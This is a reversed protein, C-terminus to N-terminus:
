LAQSRLVDKHADQIGLGMAIIALSNKVPGCRDAHQSKGIKQGKRLGAHISRQSVIFGDKVADANQATTLQAHHEALRSAL